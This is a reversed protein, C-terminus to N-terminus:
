LCDQVSMWRYKASISHKNGAWQIVSHFFYIGAKQFGWQVDSCLLFNELFSEQVSKQLLDHM